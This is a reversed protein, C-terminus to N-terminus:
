SYIRLKNNASDLSTKYVTLGNSGASNLGKGLTSFQAGHATCYFSNSSKNFTVQPQGEHSCVRTVAVYNGNTDKAIVCNNAIVYGGNTKLAANNSDNLDLTFDVNTSPSAGDNKSCGGLCSTLLAFAAAAGLSSIFEKRKM